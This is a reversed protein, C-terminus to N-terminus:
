RRRSGVDCLARHASWCFFTLVVRPRSDFALYRGDFSWQLKDITPGSLHTVQAQGSGDERAMWIERSGSRDSIWAIRGDPAYVPHHDRQTSAILREAKGAGTAAIRYVNLDWLQNVWAIRSGHRGTAPTIADAGGQAVQEPRTPANLPYRWIGHVTGTRQSSM